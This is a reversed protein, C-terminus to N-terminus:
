NHLPIVITFKTGVNVESKLTIYGGHNKIIRHTISLGLGTGHNFSKTTYFPEFILNIREPLIGQGNDAIMVRFENNVFRTTVFIEGKTDKMADLANIMLNVWAGELHDRSAFILPLDEALDLNLHVSQAIFKHQMLIVANNITANLDVNQFDYNDRRAFGLLNQVVQSARNGALEILKVSELKEEDNALERALMQANAIIATLPNNIEHVVGAALQGVAALKESQILSAELRRKETVDQEIVIAQGPQNKDNLVAVTGIEWEIPQDNVWYQNHRSTNKGTILTENVLCGPCVESRNYLSEYCKKGVLQTPHANKRGARGVNVAVIKYDTDVIYISFPLSDFLARLINRSRIIEWRNAEVDANAIRLDQINNISVISFGLTKVLAIVMKLRYPYVLLRQKFLIEVAGVVENNVIMPICTASAIKSGEIGYVASDFVSSAEVNTITQTEREAIANMLLGPKLFFTGQYFPDLGAKFATIEVLDNKNPFYLYINIGVPDILKQIGEVVCLKIEPLGRYIDQAKTLISCFNENYLNFDEDLFRNRSTMLAILRSVQDLVATSPAVGKRDYFLVGGLSNQNIPFTTGGILGIAEDAPAYEDTSIMQMAAQHLVSTNEKIWSQWESPISKSIWVLESQGKEWQIFFVGGECGVEELLFHLIKLLGSELDLSENLINIFSELRTAVRQFPM